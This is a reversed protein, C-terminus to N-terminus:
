LPELNKDNIPLGRIDYVIPMVNLQSDREWVKRM